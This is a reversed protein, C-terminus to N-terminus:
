YGKTPVRFGPIVNVIRVNAKGRAIIASVNTIGLGSRSLMRARSELTGLYSYRPQYLNTKSTTKKHSFDLSNRFIKSSPFLFISSFGHISDCTHDSQLM